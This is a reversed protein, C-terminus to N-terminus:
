GTLDTIQLRLQPLRKKHAVAVAHGQRRFSHQQAFAGLLDDVQYLLGFLFEGLCLFLKGSLHIDTGSLRHSYVIKGAGGMAQLLLIRLDMEM